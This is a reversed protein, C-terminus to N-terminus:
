ARSCRARGASEGRASAECRRASVTRAVGRVLRAVSDIGRIAADSSVCVRVCACACVCVCVFTCLSVSVSLGRISRPRRPSSPSLVPVAVSILVDNVAVKGSKDANGGPLLAKIVVLGARVPDDPAGIALSIGVPTHLSVFLEEATGEHFNVSLSHQAYVYCQSLRRSGLEPLQMIGLLDEEGEGGGQGEWDQPVRMLQFTDPHMMWMNEVVDRWKVFARSTPGHLMKAIVTRAKNQKTRKDELLGVWLDWAQVAVV